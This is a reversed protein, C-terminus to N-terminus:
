VARQRQKLRLLRQERDYVTEGGPVRMDRVLELVQRNAAPGIRTGIAAALLGAPVAFISM